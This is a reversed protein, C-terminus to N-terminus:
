RSRRQLIQVLLKVSSQANVQRIREHAQAGFLERGHHNASQQVAKRITAEHGPFKQVYRRELTAVYDALRMTVLEEVTACHYRVPQGAHSADIWTEGMEYELRYARPEMAFIKFLEFDVSEEIQSPESISNIGLKLAREPYAPDQEILALLDHLHLLEHSITSTSAGQSVGLVPLYFDQEGEPGVLPRVDFWVGTCHAVLGDVGATIELRVYPVPTADVIGLAHAKLLTLIGEEELTALLRDRLSPSLLAMYTERHKVATLTTSEGTGIQSKPEATGDRGGRLRQLSPYEIQIL